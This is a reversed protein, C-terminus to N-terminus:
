KLHVNELLSIDGVRYEVDYTLFREEEPSIDFLPVTQNFLFPGGLSSIRKTQRTQLDLRFLAIGTGEEQLAYFIARPTLRWQRTVLKEGLEEVPAEKWTKLDMSWLANQRTFYVTLGDASEVPEDCDYQNVLRAEGGEEPLKWCQMTGQRRSTFYIWRGDSSWSPNLNQLSDVTRQKVLGTLIEVTFIHPQRDQYHAFVIRSGDPSWRPSGLTESRLFTLQREKTCDTKALWLEWVGTQNSAYVISQGDPSFRASHVERASNIACQKNNFRGPVRETNESLAQLSIDIDDYSQTVAMWSNTLSLSFQNFGGPLAVVRPPADSEPDISWLEQSRARTSIFFISRSDRPWQMDSIESRDHTLPRVQQTALDLLMLDEDVNSTSQVFV